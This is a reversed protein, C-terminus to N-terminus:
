MSILVICLNPCVGHISSDRDAQKIEQEQCRDALLFVAM